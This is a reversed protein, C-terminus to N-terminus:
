RLRALFSDVRRKNFLLRICGFLLLGVIAGIGNSLVDTVDVVRTYPDSVYHLAFQVAEIAVGILPVFLHHIPKLRHVVPFFFGFPITLLINLIFTSKVFYRFLETEVFLSPNVAGPIKFHIPLLTVSSVLALYLFYFSWVFLYSGSRKRKLFLCVFYVGLAVYVLNNHDITM